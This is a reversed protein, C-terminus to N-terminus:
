RSKTEDIDEKKLGILNLMQDSYWFIKSQIIANSVKDVGFIKTIKVLEADTLKVGNDQESKTLKCKKIFEEPKMNRGLRGTKVVRNVFKM